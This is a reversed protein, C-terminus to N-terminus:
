KANEQGGQVLYVERAVSVGEVFNDISFYLNDKYRVIVENIHNIGWIRTMTIPEGKKYATSGERWEVLLMDNKKLSQLQEKTALKLIQM